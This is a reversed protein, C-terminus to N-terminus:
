GSKFNEVLEREQDSLDYLDYVLQDIQMELQAQHTKTEKNQKRKSLELISDVLTIFPQQEDKPIFKIPIEKLPTAYLELTEGKRKGRHYLWLYYLKSNLLALIYKLSITKDKQTIFYVDASAYWPVENYAFTNTKSRQPVVIKNGEFIRQKRPYFLLYYEGRELWKSVINWQYKNKQCVKLRETLLEKYPKFHNLIEQDVKQKNKQDQLYIVFLNPELSTSYKQIDSNKYWPKIFRSTNSIGKEKLEEETLIFIGDGIESDPTYLEIHKKRIKDAGSVIGQNANCKDGLTDKVSQLKELLGSLVSGNDSIGNIRIYNEDGDYLNKQEVNYYITKEDSGNFIRKLISENAEGTNFTICNEAQLDEFYGKQFVTIINHQGTASGFIKLENLNMLHLISSRQGLDSRLKSASTATLYYNTTIFSSIGHEHLIDLALHFFFYFIDMRRLHFARTRPSNMLEWFIEKNGKQGLYPPNGIVIDFGDNQYFIEPYELEWHFYNSSDRWRAAKAFDKNSIIKKYDEESVVKESCLITHLNCINKYGSLIEQVEDLWIRKDQVDSLSSSERETILRAKSIAQGVASKFDPDRDFLPIQDDPKDINSLPYNGIEDLRAGLLSNGSKLHHNMFSLPQNKAMSLIWLSLKALEVALPNIDVGYVCNEVVWRRWYGTGTSTEGEIGLDNLLETITNSILNTANVLFHGSGMAPDLVSLQLVEERVFRLSNEELLAALAQREEENIATSLAKLNAKERELFKAKLESLKEGVTSQVIYDVIYEPTYYSGTSKRESPDGAFYVSGAPLYQGLVLKGGKSVPIFTVKGKTVKVETDESAIFLKHELLGEYLTGLHRVGMDRYSILLEKGDKEKYTTLNHFAPSLYQDKIQTEEIFQTFESEQPSFLGGNYTQDIDVFIASLKDWLSYIEPGPKENGAIQYIQGLLNHNDDKLLGRADAYFLFLLRFMYLMAGHYIKQRMDEDDLNVDGENRLEEVYGMCIDSLVGQGGEERQKLANQLENEIYDVKDKSEKKFHDFQCQNEEDVVFNEAKMFKHFIQYAKKAQNTLITDLDIELYTEYPMPEDLHYIRWLKGNTLLGWQMEQERLSRIVKEAWNRGMTTNDLDEEPLTVYCLSVPQDLTGMPNLLTLADTKLVPNFGLAALVEHIYSTVWANLNGTEAYDRYERLVRLSALVEEREPQATIEELYIESFLKENQYYLPM